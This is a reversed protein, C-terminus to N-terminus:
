VLPTGNGLRDIAFLRKMENVAATIWASFTAAMCADAPKQVIQKSYTDAFRLLGHCFFRPAKEGALHGGLGDAVVFLAYSETISHAM